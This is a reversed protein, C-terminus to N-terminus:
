TVQEVGLTITLNALAVPTFTDLTEVVAILGRSAADCKFQLRLDDRISQVTDSGGSVGDASGDGLADLDITGIWDAVDAYLVSTNAVNDDLACTPAASYLHIRLRPTKKSDYLAKALVIYGSKGVADVVNAFTWVTGAGTSESIVDNVAYINADNPRTKEVSVLAMRGLIGGIINTGAALSVMTKLDELGQTVRRLKASISGVAGAAVIADATLGLTKLYNELTANAEDVPIVRGMVFTGGSVAMAHTGDLLDIAKLPPLWLNFTKDAM